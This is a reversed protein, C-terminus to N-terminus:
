PLGRRGSLACRRWAKGPMRIGWSPVGSSPTRPTSLSMSLASGCSWLGRRRGTLSTLSPPNDMLYTDFNLGLEEGESKKVRLTRRQGGESELVLELSSDYGFFRYDLVDTVTHGNIAILKEGCRVGARQAPSRPDLSTIITSM